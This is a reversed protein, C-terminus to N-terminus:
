RRTRFTWHTTALKNGSLDTIGSRVYVRYRTGGFMNLTPNITATRKSSSYSVKARVYLGTTLNKLRLTKGSVGKVRESFV